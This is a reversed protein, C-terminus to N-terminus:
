IIKLIEKLDTITTAEKPVQGELYISWSTQRNVWFVKKVGIEVAAVIDGKINDGVVAIESLPHGSLEVARTWDTKDKKKDVSAYFIENFYKSLGSGEIKRTTWEEEAHTLVLLHIHRRQLEKLTDIVDPFVEPIEEYIKFIEKMYKEVQSESLDFKEALVEFVMKWIKSPRVFAKEYTEIMTREIAKEFEKYNIGNEKTIIRKVEEIHQVFVAHTKLLTDDLDFIVAKITNTM